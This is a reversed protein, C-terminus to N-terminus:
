ATGLTTSGNYVTVTSYAEATGTIVLQTDDSRANNALNGTISGVNDAIASIAPASPASSDYIYSATRVTINGAADTAKLNIVYTGDTGSMALLLDLPLQSM